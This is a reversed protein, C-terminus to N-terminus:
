SGSGRTRPINGTGPMSTPELPKAIRAYGFIYVNRGAVSGYVLNPTVVHRSVLFELYRRATTRSIGVRAGMTEANIGEETSLQKIVDEVKDLTLPDISKPM